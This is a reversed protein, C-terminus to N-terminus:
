KTKKVAMAEGTVFDYLRNLVNSPMKEFFEYAVAIPKGEAQMNWERIYRDEPNDEGPKGGLMRAKFRINAKEFYFISIKEPTIEKRDTNEAEGSKEAESSKESEPRASVPETVTTAKQFETEMEELREMTLLDLNLKLMLGEGDAIADHPKFEADVAPRGLNAFEFGM